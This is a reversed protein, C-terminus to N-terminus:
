RWQEHLADPLPSTGIRQLRPASAQFFGLRLARPALSSQVTNEPISNSDKVALVALLSPWAIQHNVPWNRGVPAGLERGVSGHLTGMCMSDEGELAVVVAVGDLGLESLDLATPRPIFARSDQSPRARKLKRLLQLFEWTRRFVHLVARSRTPFLAPFNTQIRCFREGTIRGVFRRPREVETM